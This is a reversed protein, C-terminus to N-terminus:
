ANVHQIPPASSPSPQAAVWAMAMYLWQNLSWPLWITFQVLFHALVIVALTYALNRNQPMAALRKTLAIGFAVVMSFFALTGPIGLNALLGFLLSHPPHSSPTAGIVQPDALVYFYSYSEPGVGIWPFFTFLRYAVSWNHLRTAISQGQLKVTVIELTAERIIPISLLLAAMALSGAFAWILNRLNAQSTGFLFLLMIPLVLYTSLAYSLFVTALMIFLILVDLDSCPWGIQRRLDRSLFFPLQTLMYAGFRQPEFSVGQIRVFNYIDNDVWLAFNYPWIGYLHLFYLVLSVTCIITGNFLHIRLFLLLTDRTLMRCALVLFLMAAAIKLTATLKYLASDFPFQGPLKTSFVASYFCTGLFVLIWIHWAQVKLKVRRIIFQLLWVGTLVFGLVRMPAPNVMHGFFWHDFPLLIAMAVILTLEARDILLTVWPPLTRHGDKHREQHLLSM